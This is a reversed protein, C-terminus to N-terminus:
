YINPNNRTQPNNHVISSLINVYSDKPLYCTKMERPYSGIPIIDPDYPLNCKFVALCNEM